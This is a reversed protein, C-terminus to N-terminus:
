TTKWKSAGELFVRGCYARIMLVGKPDVIGSTGDPYEEVIECVETFMEHERDIPKCLVGSRGAKTVKMLGKGVLEKALEEAFAKITVAKTNIIFDRITEVTKDYVRDTQNVSSELHQSM